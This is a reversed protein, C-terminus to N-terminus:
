VIDDQPPVMWALKETCVGYSPPQNDMEGPDGVESYTPPNDSNNALEGLEIDNDINSLPQGCYRGWLWPSVSILLVGAILGSFIYVGLISDEGNFLTNRRPNENSQPDEPTISTRNLDFPAPASNYIRNLNATATAFLTFYYAFRQQEKM